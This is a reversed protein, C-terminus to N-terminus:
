RVKNVYKQCKIISRTCERVVVLGVHSPVHSTVGLAEGGSIMDAVEATGM